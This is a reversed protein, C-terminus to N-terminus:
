HHHHHHHKRARFQGSLQPNPPHPPPNYFRQNRSLNTLMSSVTHLGAPPKAVPICPRYLDQRPAGSYATFSSTHDICRMGESQCVRLLSANPVAVTGKMYHQGMPPITASAILLTQPFVHRLNRILQKWTTEPLTTQECSNTGVHFFVRTVERNRPVHRLWHIMDEM